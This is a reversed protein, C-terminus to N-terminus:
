KGRGKGKGKGKGKGNPQKRSRRARPTPVFQYVTEYRHRVNMGVLLDILHHGADVDKTFENPYAYFYHKETPYNREHTDGYLAVVRAYQADTLHQTVIVTMEVKGFQQASRHEM